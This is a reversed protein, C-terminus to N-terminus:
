YVIALRTSRRPQVLPAVAPPSLVNHGNDSDFLDDSDDSSNDEHDSHSDPLDSVTTANLISTRLEAASLRSSDSDNAVAAEAATDELQGQEEPISGPAGMTIEAYFDPDSSRLGLIAKLANHSTLSEYSLNFSTNPVACLRFAQTIYNAVLM